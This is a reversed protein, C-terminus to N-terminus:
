ANQVELLKQIMSDITAKESIVFNLNYEKAKKATQEGICIGFINSFDLDNANNCFGEVTSASTFTVFVNKNQVLIDKIDDMYDNIQITKYIPVDLYKRKSNNLAEVIEPNGNEARILLINDNESTLSCLGDGLHKGDFIEPVFDAIIGFNLLENATQSGIAAIKLNSLIRFDKKLAKLTDFFIKVGNKSTFGLWSYRNIESIANELMSNQEMPEIKICPLDFVNAGLDRLKASLTGESEFPRTVIVTEGFLARKSFWDFSESLSCVKGVVIIAPSKIKESISQSFVNELTSILKRQNARTGNEIIAVPTNKNMGAAILGNSIKEISSVGMLFVLTGDVKVLSEFDIKLPQNEKQHGTIIHLSSCFDRHTVPIGSFSPAAIASTIGPVVEFPINNECLLELEEGGRGFVFPDGGKLRVVFHGELAKSLLIQNIESQPVLHNNSQKGVNIKQATKPVLNLIEKSVLRDFVVVDAKELLAKGRLTLLGVDGPGAGVLAVFGKKM